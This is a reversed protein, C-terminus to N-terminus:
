DKTEKEDKANDSDVETYETDIIESEQKSDFASTDDPSRFVTQGNERSVTYGKLGLRSLTFSVIFKQVPKILLLAGLIDSIFGPFIFLFGAFPVWLSTNQTISRGQQMVAIATKFHKKVLICGCSTGIILLIITPLAGIIGGLKIIVILELAFLAIIALIIRSMYKEGPKFSKYFYCM